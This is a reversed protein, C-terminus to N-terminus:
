RSRSGSDASEYSILWEAPCSMQFVPTSRVSVARWRIMMLRDHLFSPTIEYSFQGDHDHMPDISIVEPTQSVEGGSTIFAIEGTSINTACLYVGDIGTRPEWLVHLRMTGTTHVRDARIRPPPVPSFFSASIFETLLTRGNNTIQEERIMGIGDSLHFTSIDMGLDSYYTVSLEMVNQFSGGPLIMAADLDHIRVVSRTPVRKTDDIILEQNAEWTEGKYVPWKWLLVPPDVKYTHRLGDPGLGESKFIYLEFGEATQKRTFWEYKAGNDMTYFMVIEDPHLGPLVSLATVVPIGAQCIRFDSDVSLLEFCFDADMRTSTAVLQISVTPPLESLSELLFRNDEYVALYPANRNIHVMLLHDRGTQTANLPIEIVSQAPREPTDISCIVAHYVVDQIMSSSAYSISISGIDTRIPRSTLMRVSQGRIRGHLAIGRGRDSVSFACTPSQWITQDPNGDSFRDSFSRIVQTSLYRCESGDHIPCYDPAVSLVIHPVLISVVMMLRIIEIKKLLNEKM